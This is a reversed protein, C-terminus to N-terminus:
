KIYNRTDRHKFMDRGTEDQYMYMYWGAYIPSKPDESLRGEQIAKDFAKDSENDSENM